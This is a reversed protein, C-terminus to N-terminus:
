SYTTTTSIPQPTCNCSPISPPPLVSMWNMPSYRPAGCKKCTGVQTYM